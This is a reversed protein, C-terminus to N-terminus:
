RFLSLIRYMWTKPYQISDLLSTEICPTCVDIPLQTHQTLATLTTNMEDVNDNNSSITDGDTLKLEDETLPIELAKMNIEDANPALDGM